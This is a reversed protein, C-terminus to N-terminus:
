EHRMRWGDVWRPFISFAIQKPVGMLAARCAKKGFFAPSRRLIAAFQRLTTDRYVCVRDIVASSSRALGGRSSCIARYGISRAVTLLNAGTSGYPLALLTVESGLRDEIETKSRRLQYDLQPVSLRALDAHDHSHSQVSMGARKMERLQLWTLYGPTNITATNVFFTAPLGAGVLMPFATEYDCARGDDFTLATARADSGADTSPHLLDEALLVECGSATIHQL